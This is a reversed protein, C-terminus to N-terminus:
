WRWSMVCFHWRYRLPYDFRQFTHRLTIKQCKRVPIAPQLEHCWDSYNLFFLFFIQLINFCSIPFKFLLLLSSSLSVSRIIYTMTRGSKACKVPYVAVISSPLGVSCLLLRATTSHILHFFFFFPLSLYVNNTIHTSCTLLRVFATDSVLRSPYVRPKSPCRVAVVTATTATATSVTIPVQKQCHKADLMFETFWYRHLMLIVSVKDDM